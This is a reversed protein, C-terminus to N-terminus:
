QSWSAILFLGIMVGLYKYNGGHPLVALGHCFFDKHDDMGPINAGMSGSTELCHRLPRRWSTCGLGCDVPRHAGNFCLLVPYLNIMHTYSFVSTQKLM